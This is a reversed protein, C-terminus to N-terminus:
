VILEYNDIDRYQGHKFGVEHITGCHRFGFREHLRESVKNGSTIVSVIVHTDADQEALTIIHEMLRTAVGKGRHEPSVYVSLEVTSAFAEKERYGSLSAYGAVEGDTEAVILPHNGVNHASYWQRWEDYTKPHLDLTAVGNEVEHNYIELTAAIDKEVAKRILM